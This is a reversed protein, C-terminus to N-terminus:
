NVKPVRCANQNYIFSSLDVFIFNVLDYRTNGILRFSFIFDNNRLNILNENKCFTMIDTTINDGRQKM